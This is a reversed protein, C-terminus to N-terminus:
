HYPSWRSRCEKGVRREESRARTVAASASKEAYLNRRQRREVRIRRRASARDDSPAFSASISTVWPYSGPHHVRSDRHTFRAASRDGSAPDRPAFFGFWAVEFVPPYQISIRKRPLLPSLTEARAKPVM